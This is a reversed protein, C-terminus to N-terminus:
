FTRFKEPQGLLKNHSFTTPLHLGLIKYCICSAFKPLWAHCKIWSVGGGHWFYSLFM